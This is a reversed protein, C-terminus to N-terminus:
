LLNQRTVIMNIFKHTHFTCAHINAIHIFPIFIFENLSLIHLHHARTNPPSLGSLLEPSPKLNSEPKALRTSLLSQTELPLVESYNHPTNRQM